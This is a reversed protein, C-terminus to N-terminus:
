EIKLVITKSVIKDIFNENRFQVQVTPNNRIFFKIPVGDYLINEKIYRNLTAKFYYYVAYRYTIITTKESKLTKYKVKNLCNSHCFINEVIDNWKNHLTDFYQVGITINIDKKSSNICTIKIPKQLSITDKGNNFIFSTQNLQGNIPSSAIM